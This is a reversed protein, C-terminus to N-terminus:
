ADAVAVVAALAVRQPHFGHVDTLVVMQDEVARVYGRFSPGATFLQVETAEAAGNVRVQEEADRLTEIIQANM